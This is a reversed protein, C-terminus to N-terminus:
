KVLLVEMESSRKMEAAFLAVPEKLMVSKPGCCDPRLRVKRFPVTDRRPLEVNRKPTPPKVMSLVSSPVSEIAAAVLTSSAPSWVHDFLLLRCNTTLPATPPVAAEPAVCVQVTPPEPVPSIVKAPAMPFPEDPPDSASVLVPLPVNNSVPALVNLPVTFTLAPIKFLVEFVVGNPEPDSCIQEPPVRMSFGIPASLKEFVRTPLPTTSIAGPILVFTVYLPNAEPNVPVRFTRAAEPAPFSWNPEERPTPATKFTSAPAVTAAVAKLAPVM